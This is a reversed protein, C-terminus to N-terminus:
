HFMTTSTQMHHLQPFCHSWLSNPQKDEKNIWNYTQWHTWTGFGLDLFRPGFGLDQFRTIMPRRWHQRFDGLELRFPNKKKKKKLARFQRQRHQRFDGLERRCPCARFEWPSQLKEIYSMLVNLCCLRCEQLLLGINLWLLELLRLQLLLVWLPHRRLSRPRFSCDILSLM